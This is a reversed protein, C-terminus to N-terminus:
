KVRRVTRGGDRENPVDASPMRHGRCAAKIKEMWMAVREPDPTEGASLRPRNLEERIQRERAVVSCMQRLIKPKPFWEETKELRRCAEVVLVTEIDNLDDLYIAFTQPELKAQVAIALRTLAKLRTEKDTM